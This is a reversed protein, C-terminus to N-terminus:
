SSKQGGDLIRRIKEILTSASYPKNLFAVEARLVGHRLIADDTYGSVYLVKMEPFKAELTEAVQRGGLGPMVVDTVLM